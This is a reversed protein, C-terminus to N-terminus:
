SEADLVHKIDRLGHLVRIIEVEDNTTRYFVLYNDFGRVQLWRLGSLRPNGFECTRGLRPLM